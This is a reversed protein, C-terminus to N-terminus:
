FQELAKVLEWPNELERGNVLVTPTGVQRGLLKTLGDYEAKGDNGYREKCRGPEGFYPLEVCVLNLQFGSFREQVQEKALMEKYQTCHGCNIEFYIDVPVKPSAKPATQLPALDDITVPNRHIDASAKDPSQNKLESSEKAESLEEDFTVICGKSFGYSSSPSPVQDASNCSSGLGANASPNPKQQQYSPSCSFLSLALLYAISSRM